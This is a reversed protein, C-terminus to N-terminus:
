RKKVFQKIVEDQPKDILQKFFETRIKECGILYFNSHHHNSPADLYIVNNRKEFDEAENVLVSIIEFTEINIYYKYRAHPNKMKLPSLCGTPLSSSYFGIFVLLNSSDKTKTAIKGFTQEVVSSIKENEEEVLSSLELYKKVDPNEMLIRLEERLQELNEKQQAPILKDYKKRALEIEKNNM